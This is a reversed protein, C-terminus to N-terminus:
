ETKVDANSGSNDAADAALAAQMQIAQFVDKPTGLIQAPDTIDNFGTSEDELISPVRNDRYCKALDIAGFQEVVTKDVDPNYCGTCEM